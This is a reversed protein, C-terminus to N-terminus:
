ARMAPAAVTTHRGITTAQITELAVPAPLSASPPAIMRSALASPAETPQVRWGTRFVVALIVVIAVAVPSWVWRHQWPEGARADDRIRAMVRAKLAAPTRAETLARAVEDIDDDWM